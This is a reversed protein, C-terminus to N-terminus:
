VPRRTWWIQDRETRADPWGSAALFRTVAETVGRQGFDHGCYFGGPKLAVSWAVLDAVVAEFAHDGDIFVLDVSKSGFARAVDHSQGVMPVVRVLEPAKLVNVLFRPLTTPVNEGLRDLALQGTQVDSSRYTDVCAVLPGGFALALATYGCWTGVEVCIGASGIERARAGLWVATDRGSLREPASLNRELWDASEHETMM